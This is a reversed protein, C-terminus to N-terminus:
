PCDLQCDSKKELYFVMTGNPKETWEVGILRVKCCLDTTMKKRLADECKTSIEEDSFYFSAELPLGDLAALKVDLHGGRANIELIPPEIEMEDAYYATLSLSVLLLAIASCARLMTGGLINM